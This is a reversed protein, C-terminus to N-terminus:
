LIQETHSIEVATRRPIGDHKRTVAMRYWTVPEGYPVKKIVDLNEEQILDKNVREQWLMLMSAVTDCILPTTIIPYQAYFSITMFCSM